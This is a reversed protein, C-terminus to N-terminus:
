GYNTVSSADLAALQEEFQVAIELLSRATDPDNILGAMRRLYHTQRRKEKTDRAPFSGSLFVTADQPMRPWPVDERNAFREHALFMQQVAVERCGTLQQSAFVM